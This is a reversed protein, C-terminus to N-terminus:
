LPQIQAYPTPLRVHPNHFYIFVTRLYLFRSDSSNKKAHLYYLYRILTACPVIYGPARACFFIYYKRFLFRRHRRRNCFILSNMNEPKIYRCAYYIYVNHALHTGICMIMNGYWLIINYYNDVIREHLNLKVNFRTYVWTVSGSYILINTKMINNYRFGAEIYKLVFGRTGPVPSNSTHRIHSHSVRINTM